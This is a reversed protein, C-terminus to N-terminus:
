YGFIEKSKKNWEEESGIFDEWRDNNKFRDWSLITKNKYIDIIFFNIYKDGVFGGKYLCTNSDQIFKFESILYNGSNGAEAIQFKYLKNGAEQCKIENELSKQRSEELTKIREQSPLYFIFYYSLSFCVLIIGFAIVLKFWNNNLWNKLKEQM